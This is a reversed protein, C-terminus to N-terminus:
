LVFSLLYGYIRASSNLRIDNPNFDKIRYTPYSVPYIVGFYLGRRMDLREFRATIHSLTGLYM